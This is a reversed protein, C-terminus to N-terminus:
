KRILYLKEILWLIIVIFLEVTKEFELAGWAVHDANLEEIWYVVSAGFLDDEMVRLVYLMLAVYPVYLSIERYKRDGRARVDNHELIVATLVRQTSGNNHESRKGRRNLHAKNGM